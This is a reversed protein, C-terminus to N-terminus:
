CSGAYEIRNRGGTKAQYLAQDAHAVLSDVHDAPSPHTCSIGISLTVYEAVDSTAHPIFVQQMAKQIAAAIQRAGNVETAPLLVVFEEGGYRAIFDAPRNVVRCIAQSVLKLCEDGAQHGYHDNYNKFLDVDLMLLSLAERERSMRRWESHLKEDLIRRNPIGLLPDNDALQKLRKESQELTSLMANFSDGISAFERSPGMEAVRMNARGARVHAMTDALQQLPRLVWSGLGVWLAVIVILMTVVFQLMNDRIINLMPTIVRKGPQSALVFLEPAGNGLQKYAIVYQEGDPLKDMVVGASGSTLAQRLRLSPYPKGAEFNSDTGQVLVAGERDVISVEMDAQRYQRSLTYEIWDLTRGAVLVLKVQDHQDLVPMALPLIRQKSIRSQQYQGVVFRKESLAQIFYHQASFNASFATAATSCILEGTADLLMVTDIGPSISIYAPLLHQCNQPSANQAELITVMARMLNEMETLWQEHVAALLGAKIQVDEEALSRHQRYNDLSAITFSIALVVVIIAVLGTFLLRQSPQRISARRRSKDIREEAM